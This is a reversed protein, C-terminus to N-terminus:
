KAEAKLYRDFWAIVREALDLQNAYSWDRPAHSEGEYKAYEVQKGLDRLDVFVEDSLFSPVDEDDSGHVILLPTAVRDFYFVPSNEFFTLPVQSPGGMGVFYNATTIGNNSGDSQMAGYSSVFNGYGSIAVAARFRKSETLLAVAAFGGSSHGLLGIRDPDAIGMEIMKNVGPLVSKALSARVQGPTHLADSFLVAYGRTAFLQMNYPGPFQGFAFSNGHHSQPTGPYTWVILPYRKGPAYNSPLLLAGHLRDGDEGLWEIIRESGLSYKEFQPNLHTIQRPQGLATDSLWLDPAHRADEAVFAVQNSKTAVALVYSPVDVRWRCSYCSNQELLRTSEGTTLDIRYFGEEKTEDDTAVVITSRGGDDAWLTDDTRWMRFSISHRPISALPITSSEAVSSKWFKGNLLFYFHDGSRDWVPDGADCCWYKRAPLSSVKQPHGGTTDVVYYDYPYPGSAAQTDFYAGYGILHGRPSWSFRDIYVDSAVVREEKTGLRHAILDCKHKRDYGKPVVYAVSDGDPSLAYWQITKGHVLVESRGTAVEVLALDHLYLNLNGTSNQEDSASNPAAVLNAQYLRVTSNRPPRNKSDEEGIPTLVKNRYEQVSLGEPITTVLVHKSDPMWRLGNILNQGRVLLPSVLRLDDKAAEWVWLKAQGSRDRDSVFALYRGDPSWLPDWSSGNGTLNRSEGTELNTVWISGDENRVDVGTEVFIETENRKQRTIKQNDQVVYALLKGDPSFAFPSEEAFSKTKLADEVSIPELVQASLETQVSLHSVMCLLFGAGIFQVCNM